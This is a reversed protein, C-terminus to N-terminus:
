SKCGLFPHFSRSASLCHDPIPVTTRMKPTSFAWLLVPSTNNLRPQRCRQLWCPLLHGRCCGHIPHLRLSLRSHCAQKYTTVGCVHCKYHIPFCTYARLAAAPDESGLLTSDHVGTRFKLSLLVVTRSLCALTSWLGTKASPLDMPIINNDSSSLSRITAM